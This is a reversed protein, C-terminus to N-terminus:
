LGFGSIQIPCAARASLISDTLPPVTDADPVLRGKLKTAGLENM